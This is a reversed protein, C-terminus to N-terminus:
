DSWTAKRRACSVAGLAGRWPGRRNTQGRQREALAPCDAPIRTRHLHPIICCVQRSIEALDDGPVALFPDAERRRNDAATYAATATTTANPGAQKSPTFLLARTPGHGDYLQQQSPQQVLRDFYPSARPSSPARASVAARPQKARRPLAPAAFLAKRYTTTTTTGAPAPITTAPPTKGTGRPSHSVTRQHHRPSRQDPVSPHPLCALPRLTPCVYWPLPTKPLPV